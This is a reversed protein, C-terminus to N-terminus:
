FVTRRIVRVIHTLQKDCKKSPEQEWSLKTIGSFGFESMQGCDFDQVTVFKQSRDFKYRSVACTGGILIRYRSLIGAGILSTGRCAYHESFSTGPRCFTRWVRRAGPCGQPGASAPYWSGARISRRTVCGGWIAPGNPM